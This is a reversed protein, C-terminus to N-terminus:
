AQVLNTISAGFEATAVLDRIRALIDTREAATSGAPITADLKIYYVRSVEGACGCASDEPVLVPVSVNWKTSSSDKGTSTTVKTTLYSFGSPVGSSRDSYVSMGNQNFGNPAYTHSNLVINPM